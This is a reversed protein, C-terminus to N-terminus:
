AMLHNKLACYLFFPTTIKPYLVSSYLVTHKKDPHHQFISFQLPKRVVQLLTHTEVTGIPTYPRLALAMVVRHPLLQTHPFRRRSQDIAMFLNHVPVYLPSQCSHLFDTMQVCFLLLLELHMGENLQLSHPSLTWTIFLSIPIFSSSFIIFSSLFSTLLPITSFQFTFHDVISNTFYDVICNTTSGLCRCHAPDAM